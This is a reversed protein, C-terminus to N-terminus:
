IKITLCTLYIFFIIVIYLIEINKKVKTFLQYDKINYLNYKTLNRM